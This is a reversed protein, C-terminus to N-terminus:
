AWLGDQASPQPPQPTSADTDPRELQVRDSGNWQWHTVLVADVGETRSLQAIALGPVEPYCGWERESTMVVDLDFAALLGLYKARANDDVGAFAEDLTVLRPAHPNGASAYHSSAAAFLPVSAALVREGGSAPGTASKWQGNQHREIVFQHWGRYDLATTLQELWTGATDRARVDAIREQLFSGVTSRDEESWADPNQRLLRERAANLGTPGDPRPRWVLRLRMGTSTPRAALEENMRAVQNEAASILEQLTSAVENVLHNELIEREREDLLRERDSVETELADVLDPVSTRRGHFEVEVVIGDDLLDATARNGQRTLTETLTKHEETVRRQARDWTHDDEAHDSLEDNVKRALRVTPDPSWTTTSDPVELEPLAVALLGTQAFRRFSDTAVTRHETAEALETRLQERRGNANGRADLANEVERDAEGRHQTNASLSNTVESLQRELEEVAAGVTDRLTQHHEGAALAAQEAESAREALDTLDAEADALEAATDAARREADVVARWAPWLGELQTRYEQLARTVENLASRDSPLAADDAGTTLASRATRNEENAAALAHTAESQRQTLREREAVLSSVRAHADRLAADDPLNVMEAKLAASREDLRARGDALETLQADLTTLEGRLDALRARRAVERTSRGIYTAVPKNWRGEVPGNRFRGRRSVATTSETDLADDALGIATLVETVTADSVTAARPDDRDVAPRLATALSTRAPTGARVVVDEAEPDLVEGTPMVWGDLIGAAELAAEIGARDDATVEDAFDVLRWLPAGDRNARAASDRTYPTPPSTDEGRELRDIEEILEARRHNRDQQQAQLDADARALEGTAAHGATNVATAAPNTGDLTEVWLELEALTSAPDPLRLETAGDLHARVATVLDAGRQEVANDASETREALEGAETDLEASRRQADALKRDATDVDNLLADVHDVARQQRDRLQEAARRVAAPEAHGELPTDVHETHSDAIRATSAVETASQRRTTLEERTGALRSEASTHQERRTALRNRSKDREGALRQAEDTRRRVEESSRELEQASRMEPSARLAGEKAQLQTRANTLEQVRSKAAELQEEAATHDAEAASLDRNVREYGTQADRPQRARRRAAIRAYRRYHSLFSTAAERAETMSRLSERDEELSRFAEAVDAIVAQDLPPLAETLANSLTREDPRKSLHPQRLQVLLDVLAGYRQAGFGFLAEDVARRYDRARDYTTGRDALADTLRDKSLATGTADVLDLEDGVRQDTVFFWHRSIGRGAVAKMGCGLTRIDVRGHEDLRGFELWSYGLRESHPHAGGLLLNWDMRKKPDADPEVRHPSLDGDLLFPLTLALVKSKGTGNNGRLLLRGDHFWFEESDYYFLDILGARLPQWRTLQPDPLERTM